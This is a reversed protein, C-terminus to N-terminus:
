PFYFYQYLKKDKLYRRFTLHLCLIKLQCCYEFLTSVKTVQNKKNEDTMNMLMVVPGVKKSSQVHAGSSSNGKRSDKTTAQETRASESQESADASRLTRKLDRISSKGYEADTSGNGNNQNREIIRDAGQCDRRACDEADVGTCRGPDIVKQHLLVDFMCQLEPQSSYKTLGKGAQEESKEKSAARTVDEAKRKRIAPRGSMNTDPEFDRSRKVRAKEAPVPAPVPEFPRKAPPTEPIQNEKNSTGEVQVKENSGAPAGSRRLGIRRGTPSSVSIEPMNPLQLEEAQAQKVLSNTGATDSVKPLKATPGKLL